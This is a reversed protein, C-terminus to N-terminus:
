HITTNRSRFNSREVGSLLTALQARDLTAKLAGDATRSPLVFRAGHVRKYLLCYGNREWWLMKLLHGSKGVFCFLSGSQPQEGLRHEVLSALRDFSCRMDIPELYLFIRSVSPTM